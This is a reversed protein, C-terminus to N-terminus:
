KSKVSEVTIGPYYNTNLELNTEINHSPVFLMYIWGAVVAFIILAFIFKSDSNM